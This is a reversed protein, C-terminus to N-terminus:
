EPVDAEATQWRSFAPCRIPRRLEWDCDASCESPVYAGPRQGEQGVYASKSWRDALQTDVPPAWCGAHEGLGGPTRSQGLLGAHCPVHQAAATSM